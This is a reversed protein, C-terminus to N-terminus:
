GVSHLEEVHVNFMEYLTGSCENVEVKCNRLVQQVQVNATGSCTSYKFVNMASSILRHAQANM